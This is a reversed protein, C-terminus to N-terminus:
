SLQLDSSFQMFKSSVAAVFWRMCCRAALLVRQWASCVCCSCRSLLLRLALAVAAARSCCSCHGLLPAFTPQLHARVPLQLLTKTPTKGVNIVATRRPFWSCCSPKQPSPPQPLLLFFFISKLTEHNKDNLDRHNQLKEKLCFCILKKGKFDM